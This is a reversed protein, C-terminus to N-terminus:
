ESVEYEYRIKLADTSISDIHMKYTMTGGWFGVTVEILSDSQAVWQGEYNEYYIPPTACWGGNKRETFSGDSHLVFGYNDASLEEARELLTFEDEYGTEVWTGVININEGLLEAKEDFSECAALLIIGLIVILRKM